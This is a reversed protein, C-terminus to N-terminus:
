SSTPDSETEARQPMSQPTRERASNRRSWEPLVSKVNKRILEILPGPADNWIANERIRLDSAALVLGKTGVLRGAIQWLMETAASSKKVTSALECTAHGALECVLEQSECTLKYDADLMRQMLALEQEPLPIETREIQGGAIEFEQRVIEEVTPQRAALTGNKLAIAMSGEWGYISIENASPSIEPSGTTPGFFVIDLVQQPTLEHREAWPELWVVLLRDSPNHVRLTKRVLKHKPLELM